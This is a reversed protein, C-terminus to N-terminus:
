SGSFQVLYTNEISMVTKIVPASTSVEEVSGYLKLDGKAAYEINLVLALTRQAIRSASFCMLDPAQPM